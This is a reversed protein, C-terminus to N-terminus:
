NMSNFSFHCHGRSLQDKSLYMNRVQPSLDSSLNYNLIQPRLESSGLGLRVINWAKFKDLAIANWQIRIDASIKMESYLLDHLNSCLPERLAKHTLEVKSNPGPYVRM